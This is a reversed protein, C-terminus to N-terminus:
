QHEYHSDVVEQGTYNPGAQDDAGVYRFPINLSRHGRVTLLHRKNNYDLENDRLWASIDKYFNKQSPSKFNHLDLNAIFTGDPTLLSCAKQIGSLKDGIYHLGHVCTVLDFKLNTDLSLFSGTFLTISNCDAPIPDYTDVLDIGALHFHHDPFRTKLHQATQILARARGCCIDMWGVSSLKKSRETLFEIPSLWIDREYSNVGVANRERNMRNNAVIPSLELRDNLLLSM